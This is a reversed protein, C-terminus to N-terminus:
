IRPSAVIKVDKAGGQTEITGFLTKNKASINISGPCVKEFRFKGQIDTETRLDPQGDGWLTVPINAVAKGEGDIVIGSVSLTPKKLIIADIEESDKTRNITGTEIKNQWYGDASAHIIWDQKQPLAKFEYRGKDDTLVDEVPTGCGFGPASAQTHLTLGVKAKPIPLGNPDQITGTLTLGPELIINVVETPETITVMAALNLEQHRAMPFFYEGAWEPGWGVDFKGKKDTLVHFCTIPLPAVQAGWVPKGNPDVVQGSVIKAPVLSIEVSQQGAPLQEIGVLKRQKHVAFFYRMKDSLVLSAVFRGEADTLYEMKTQFLTVRTGSVPQGQPDRVQGTVKILNNTVAQNLSPTSKEKHETASKPKAPRTQSLAIGVISGVTVLSVVLAWVVGTRPNACSDKLIRRIRGALGRKSRVVAPVFAMQGVPTLNLLSEAYDTGSQGSAIVWDDCAQESLSILRSKAPWLLPHWPLLCVALESLFGALHDRRKYHALEHCLVSSWDIDPLGAASPVLLVPTRKWCWIVPSHIKAGGYIKVQKRIGLKTKAQDIAQKIKDHDFPMARRLLRVGLVFTVLLRAALIPSATMWAYLLASRWPFKATGSGTMAPRLERSIPAPSRETVNNPIIGTTEHVAHSEVPPQIVAPKAVFMGLEYHKVLISAGPVIVAAMMALLLVRHARASRRWLIFSGLMGAALFITSQWLCSWLFSEAPFIEGTM